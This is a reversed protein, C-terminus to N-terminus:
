KESGETKFTAEVRDDFVTFSLRGSKGPIYVNKLDLKEERPETGYLASFVATLTIPHPYFVYVANGTRVVTGWACMFEGFKVGSERLDRSSRNFIEVDVEPNSLRIGNGGCSTLLVALVLVPIVFKM